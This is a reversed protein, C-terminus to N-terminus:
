QLAKISAELQTKRSDTLRDSPVQNLANKYGTVALGKDGLQEALRGIALSTDFTSKLKDAQQYASLAQSYVTQTEYAKAEALYFTQKDDNTTAVKLGDIAVAPIQEQKGQNQLSSITTKYQAVAMQPWIVKWYVVVGILVVAVICLLIIVLKRKFFPQTQTSGFM